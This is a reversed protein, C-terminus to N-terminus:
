GSASTSAGGSPQVAASAAPGPAFVIHGEVHAATPGDAVYRVACGSACRVSITLAGGESAVLLDGPRIDVTALDAGSLRLISDTGPHANGPSRRDAVYASWDPTFRAPVFGISEAGIDGGHPLPSTAILRAHGDPSLAWIRGTKEDPAVLDGAYSGFSVPAVAIGGEVTPQRTAITSVHGACDIGFLRTGGKAGATVLLRHGFRGVDDVAIGNPTVGPLDALRRAQGSADVAIVGTAGTPQLAYVTDGAFSCRTGTVSQGTGLAIYPEPAPDTAYGAGGRAFAEPRGGPRLLSLRGGAAVTLLGDRRPGTLDVVASVHLHSTWHVPAPTRPPPPSGGPRSGGCAGLWLLLGLFLV